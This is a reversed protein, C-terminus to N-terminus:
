WEPCMLMLGYLRGIDIRRALPLFAYEATHGPYTTVFVFPLTEVKKPNGALVGPLGQASRICPPPYLLESGAAPQWGGIWPELNVPIGKRSTKNPKLVRHGLADEPYLMLKGCVGTAKARGERWVRAPKNEESNLVEHILCPQVVLADYQAM